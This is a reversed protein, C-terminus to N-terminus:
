SLKGKVMDSVQKADAAGVAKDMVYKMVKGMDSMATAGTESIAEAVLKALAEEDMKQPLYSEIITLENAEKDALDERNGAKYQEISDRRQKAQKELTSLVEADNLEHGLAITQNQLSSRLLRLTALLDANQAKMAGKMDESIREQLSM